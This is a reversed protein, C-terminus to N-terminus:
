SSSVSGVTWIWTERSIVPGYADPVKECCLLSHGSPDCGVVLEGNGEGSLLGSGVISGRLVWLLGRRRLGARSGERGPGKAERQM